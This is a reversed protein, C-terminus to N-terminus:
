GQNTNDDMSEEQGGYLTLKGDKYSVLVSPVFKWPEIMNYDEEAEEAEAAEAYM